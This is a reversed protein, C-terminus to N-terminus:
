AAATRARRQVALLAGILGVLLPMGIVNTWKLVSKKAEVEKNIEKRIDREQKEIDRSNKEMDKISNMTAQDVIIQGKKLDLQPRAKSLKEAIEQRKAALAVLTPRKQAEVNERMEALKKFPRIPSKRNRIQILDGGGALREISNLLMPLNGGNTVLGVGLDGQRLCFADYLMDSDSFVIVNRESDKSEKLSDDKKAEPAKPAAAAAPAAAAPAPAAAAAPVSKGDASVPATTVSIPPTTVTVPAAPAAPPPTTPASAAAPPPTPSPPPTPAAPAAAAAPATTDQEAGGTEKPAGPAAPRGNPFATKFKGKIHVGLIQARGSANFNTLPERRLKDAAATDIMESQESSSALITTDLGEKKDIGFSGANMLTLSQIGATFPVNENQNISKGPIQLATPMLRGQLNGRYNMDAVIMDKKYNIGWAKFLNALESSGNIMNGPQGTMPNPQSSMAQALLSQPDVFAIVNGGGLLYQDIAFEATETIDAPHVILLVTIDSDIKDATVPFDRVEYDAKLQSIVAWPEGGRQRQMMMMPQGGIQMASMVGVVTKTPKIVKAVARSVEYELSTADDPSLFPLIEKRDLCQITMGLYINDGEQNVQMGRVEDEKAKDEDDTDPNPHIVELTVNGNGQKEYELLLDEITRVHPKLVNPMVRDDNTAYFKITVPEDPNIRGIINKTGTSLTYLGDETLDLRVNGVGVGGVLFNLAAIVALTLLTTIGIAATKNSASM